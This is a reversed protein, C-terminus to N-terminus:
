SLCLFGLSLAVLALGVVVSATDDGVSRYDRFLFWLGLWFGAACLLLREPQVDAEGGSM